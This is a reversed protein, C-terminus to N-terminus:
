STIYEVGSSVQLPPILCVDCCRINEAEIKWRAPYSTLRVRDYQQSPISPAPYQINQPSYQPLLSPIALTNQPSYQLLLPYISFDITPLINHYFFTYQLHTTPLISHVPLRRVPSCYQGVYFFFSHCNDCILPM